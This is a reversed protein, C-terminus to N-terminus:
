FRKIMIHYWLRKLPRIQGKIERNQSRRNIDFDLITHSDIPPNDGCQQNEAKVIVALM